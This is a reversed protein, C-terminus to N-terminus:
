KETVRQPALSLEVFRDGSKTLRNPEFGIPYRVVEVHAESQLKLLLEIFRDGSVTHRDVEFRVVGVCM